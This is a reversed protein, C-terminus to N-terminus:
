ARSQQVERRGSAARRRLADVLRLGLLVALVAAFVLPAQLDAKVRWVFHIVGLVASVYVLRHWRQWKVFGLRRVARANSTLALPVLLLLAVFGVTIFPRKAIDELIAPVDLAQDLLLYTAFHLCAYAFAFLGITRRYRVAGGWGSVIRIATPTLSLMLFTLTWFGFRNLIQEIPNAGLGGRAADIGMKVLPLACAAWVAAYVLRRRAV